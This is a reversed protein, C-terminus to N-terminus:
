KFSSNKYTKESNSDSYDSENSSSNESEEKIESLNTNVYVTEKIPVEENATINEQKKDIISQNDKTDKIGNISQESQTSLNIPTCSAIFIFLM